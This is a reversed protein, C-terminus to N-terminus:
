FRWGARAVFVFDNRNGTVSALGLDQGAATADYASNSARTWGCELSFISPPSLIFDVGVRATTALGWHTEDVLTRVEDTNTDSWAFGINPQAQISTRTHNPGVGALLFPRVLGRNIISFKAAVLAQLTNGFVDTQSLPLLSPSATRSRTLFELMMGTSWRTSLPHLYQASLLFGADGNSDTGGGTSGFDVRSLPASVGVGLSFLARPENVDFSRFPRRERLSSFPPAASTQPVTPATSEDAYDIREVNQAPISKLGGITQVEISQATASVIEGRVQSNDKIYVVAAQASSAFVLITLVFIPKIM